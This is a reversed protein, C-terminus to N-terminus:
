RIPSIPRSDDDNGRSALVIIIVAAAAGVILAWHWPKLGGSGGTQRVASSANAEASEGAGLTVPESSLNNVTIGGLSNLVTIRGSVLSGAITGPDSGLSFTTNPALQLKGTKGLSLIAQMGDPTSITSNTFLTRGSKASEGNVTVSANESGGSVILEGIPRSSAALSVMSGTVVIALVLVSSLGCKALEKLRIFEM